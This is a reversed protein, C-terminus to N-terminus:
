MMLSITIKMTNKLLVKKYLTSTRKLKKQCIKEANRRDIFGDKVTSHRSVQHPRKSMTHARYSLFSTYYWYTHHIYSKHRNFNCHVNLKITVVGAAWCVVGLSCWTACSVRSSKEQFIGSDRSIRSTFSVHRPQFHLISKEIIINKLDSKYRKSIILVM